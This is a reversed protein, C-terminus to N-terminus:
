PQLLIKRAFDITDNHNSAPIHHIRKADMTRKINEIVKSQGSTPSEPVEITFLIDEISLLNEEAARTVRMVWTDGHEMMKGPESQTFALPKIACQIENHKKAVLPM